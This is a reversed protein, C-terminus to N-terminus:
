AKRAKLAQTAKQAKASGSPAGSSGQGQNLIGGTRRTHHADRRRACHAQRRSAM